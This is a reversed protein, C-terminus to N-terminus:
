SAASWDSVLLDMASARIWLRCFTVTRFSFQFQVTSICWWMTLADPIKGLRVFTASSYLRVPLLNATSIANRRLTSPTRVQM